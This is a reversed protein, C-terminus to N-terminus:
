RFDGRDIRRRYRMDDVCYWIALGALIWVVLPM